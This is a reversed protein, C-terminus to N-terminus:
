SNLVILVFIILIALLVTLVIIINKKSLKDDEEEILSAVIAVKVNEEEFVRVLIYPAISIYIETGNGVKKIAEVQGAIPRMEKEEYVNLKSAINIAKESKETIIVKVYDMKVLQNLFKGKVPSLIAKGALIVNGSFENDITVTKEQEPEQEQEQEQTEVEFNLKARSSIEFDVSTIRETELQISIGDITLTDSILQQFFNNLEGYQDNKVMQIINNSINSDFQSEFQSLMTDSKISDPEAEIDRLITEEFTIWPEFPKHNYIAASSGALTIAGILSNFENSLYIIFLGFLTEDKDKFRSKVVTVDQYTGSVIKKALEEDNNAYKLAIDLKAKFSRQGNANDSM